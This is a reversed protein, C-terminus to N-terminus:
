KRGEETDKREEKEELVASVSLVRSERGKVLTVILVGDFEMTGGRKRGGKKVKSLLVKM